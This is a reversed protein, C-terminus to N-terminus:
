KGGEGGGGQESEQPSHVVSAESADHLAAVAALGTGLEKCLKVRCGIVGCLKRHAELRTASVMSFNLGPHYMLLVM